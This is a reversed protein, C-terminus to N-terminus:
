AAQDAEGPNLSYTKGTVPGCDSCHYKYVALDHRSPHLAIEAFTVSKRCIPCEDDIFFRLSM